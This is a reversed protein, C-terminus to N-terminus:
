EWRSSEAMEDLAPKYEYKWFIWGIFLFLVLATIALVFEAMATFQYALSCLTM